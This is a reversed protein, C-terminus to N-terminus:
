DSEESIAKLSVLEVSMERNGRGVWFVKVKIKSLNLDSGELTEELGGYPSVDSEWKFGDKFEGSGPVPDMALEEMKDKAHVIARTYDCSARSNKLGGSFLQMVSTLTVAVFLMAALVEILTFGRDRRPVCFAFHLICFQLNRPLKMTIRM